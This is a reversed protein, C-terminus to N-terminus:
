NGSERSTERETNGPNERRDHTDNRLRARVIAGDALEQATTGPLVYFSSSLGTHHAVVIDTIGMLSDLVLIDNVVSANARGGANRVVMCGTEHILWHM